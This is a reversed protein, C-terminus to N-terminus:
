KRNYCSLIAVILAVLPVSLGVGTIRDSVGLGEGGGGGDSGSSNSSSGVLSGSIVNSSSSQSNNTTTISGISETTENSSQIAAPFANV